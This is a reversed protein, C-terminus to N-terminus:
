KYAERAKKALEAMGTPDVYPTNNKPVPIVTKSEPKEKNYEEIIEPDETYQEETIAVIHSFFIYSKTDTIPLTVLIGREDVSDIRGVFYKIM